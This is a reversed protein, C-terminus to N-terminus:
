KTLLISANGKYNQLTIHANTPPGTYILESITFNTSIDKSFITSTDKLIKFLGNGSGTNSVAMYLNVTDASFALAIDQDYNHNTATISVALTDNVSRVSVSNYTSSSSTTEDSCGNFGILAFIAISIILAKLKGGQLAIM